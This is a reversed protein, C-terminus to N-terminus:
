RSCSGPMRQFSAFRPRRAFALEFFSLSCAWSSSRNSPFVQDEEIQAHVSLAMCIQQVLAEKEEDKGEQKNLKEYDKFLKKVAKHDEALLTTAHQARTSTQDKAQPM